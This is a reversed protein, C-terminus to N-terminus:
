TVFKCFETQKTKNQKQKQKKKQKNVQTPYNYCAFVVMRKGSFMTPDHTSAIIELAEGQRVNTNEYKAVCAAHNEARNPEQNRSNTLQSLLLIIKLALEHTSFLFSFLFPSLPFPFLIIM